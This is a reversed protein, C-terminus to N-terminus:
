VVQGEIYMRKLEDCTAQATEPLECVQKAFRVDNVKCIQRTTTEIWLLFGLSNGDVKIEIGFWSSEPIRVPLFDVTNLHPKPPQEEYHKKKGM